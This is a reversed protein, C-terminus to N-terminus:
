TLLNRRFRKIQRKGHMRCIFNIRHLVCFQMFWIKKMRKGPFLHFLDKLAKKILTIEFNSLGQDLQHVCYAHILLWKTDLLSIPYVAPNEGYNRKLVRYYTLADRGIRRSTYSHTDSNTHRRNYFYLSEKLSVILEARQMIQSSIWVDDTMEIDDPLEIFDKWIERKSAYMPMEANYGWIIMQKWRKIGYEEIRNVKFKGVSTLEITGWVVVDADSTEFAKVAKEILTPDYYDDADLWFIYQGNAKSLLRERTKGAGVNEQHFVHIISYKGGYEDCIQPTSDKSGDDILIIEFDKYSQNLVSDLARRLYKEVNYAPILVSVKPKDTGGEIKENIM